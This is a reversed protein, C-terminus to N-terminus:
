PEPFEAVLACHDSVPLPVAQASARAQTLAEENWGDAMIHDFQVRPKVVPYTPTRAIQTWGTVLGPIGGPTNFDGLLIMPRPRGALFARLESLQKTNYGPVFTLHATAVTVDAHPLEVIGSVATRPEDPVRVAKPRGSTTPAMLPLSVPVPPIRRVRWQRIPYRSILAIGYRPGARAATREPPESQDEPLDDAETAPVWAAGESAIGPTGRVSPVFRWHRAGITEAVLRAQDVLGTREQFRDVEQLAIVDIPGLQLLEEISRVLESPDPVDPSWVHRDTPSLGASAHLDAEAAPDHAADGARTAQAAHASDPGHGDAHGSRHQRGWHRSPAGTDHPVGEGERPVRDRLPVGHLLNFTAVRVRVSQCM